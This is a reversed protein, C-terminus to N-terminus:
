RENSGAEDRLTRKQVVSALVRVAMAAARVTAVAAVSRSQGITGKVAALLLDASYDVLVEFLIVVVVVVVVVLILLLLLRLRALALLALGIVVVAVLGLGLVRAGCLAALVEEM